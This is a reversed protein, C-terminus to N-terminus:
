GSPFTKWSESRKSCYLFFLNVEVLCEGNLLKRVPNAAAAICHKKLEEFVTQLFVYEEPIPAKQKPPEPVPPAAQTNQQGGPQQRFNSANFNNQQPPMQQQQQQQQPLTQQFNQYNIAGPIQQQQQQQLQGMAAPNFISPPQTQQQQQQQPPMQMGGPPLYQGPMYNSNPDPYGNNQQGTPFGGPFPATIPAM